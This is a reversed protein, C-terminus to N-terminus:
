NTFLKPGMKPLERKHQSSLIMKEIKAKIDPEAEKTRIYHDLQDYTFGIDAEDTQGPWLGASPPKKIIKDPIGIEQALGRVETKTINGLPLIDVGGDGYKTFYGITIESLNGTGVVLYNNLNSFYYLAAMRLRPKLNAVALKNDIGNISQSEKFLKLLEDLVADLEIFETKISFMKSIALADENDEQYSQCPMIIALSNDPYAEHCLYAIVASDVGGSLGFVTGSFAASSVENKIWNVLEKVKNDM